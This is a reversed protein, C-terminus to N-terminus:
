VVRHPRLSRSRVSDPAVDASGADGEAVPDTKGSGVYCL